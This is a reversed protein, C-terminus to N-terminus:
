FINRKINFVYLLELLRTMVERQNAVLRRTAGTDTFSTSNHFNNKCVHLDHSFTIYIYIIGVSSSAIGTVTIGMVTVDYHALHRRSDGARSQASLRKNLRLYFFCWLEADSAKALPIRRHGASEGWLPGTVPCINGNSSTVMSYSIAAMHQM